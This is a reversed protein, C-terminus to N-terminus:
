SDHDRRADIRDRDSTSSSPRTFMCMCMTERTIQIQSRASLRVSTENQARQVNVKGRVAHRLSGLSTWGEMVILTCSDIVIVITFLSLIVLVRYLVSSPPQSASLQDKRWWSKQRRQCKVSFKALMPKKSSLRYGWLPFAM